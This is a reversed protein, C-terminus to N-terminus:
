GPQIPSQNEACPRLSELEAANHCLKNKSGTRHARAIPPTTTLSSALVLLPLVPLPHLITAHGLIVGIDPWATRTRLRNKDTRM